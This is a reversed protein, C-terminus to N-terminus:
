VSASVHTDWFGVGQLLTEQFPTVEHYSSCLAISLSLTKRKSLFYWISIELMWSSAICLHLTQHSCFWLIWYKDPSGNGHSSTLQIWTVCALATRVASKMLVAGHSWRDVGRGLHRKRQFELRKVKDIDTYIYGVPHLYLARYRTPSRHM